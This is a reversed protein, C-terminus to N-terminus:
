GSVVFAARPKGLRGEEAGQGTRTFFVAELYRGGSQADRVETRQPLGSLLAHSPLRSGAVAFHVV